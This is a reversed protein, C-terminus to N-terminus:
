RQVPQVRSRRSLLALVTLIGSVATVFLAIWLYVPDEGAFVVALVASLALAIVMAWGAGRWIFASLVLFLIAPVAPYWASEAVHTQALVWAFLLLFLGFFAVFAAYLRAAMRDALTSRTNM